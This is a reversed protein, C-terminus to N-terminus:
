NKFVLDSVKIIKGSSDTVSPYIEVSFEWKKQAKEIEEQSQAGKLFLGYFGEGTLFNSTLGLLDGLPALARATVVDIKPLDTNEVRSNHVIVPTGTERSVERLFVAKRADSEILHVDKVGLIALVLGPFGAGSGMDALSINVDPIHQFLQASDFFHRSAADDMTSSSILNITKQWKRLLTEYIEMKTITERSVILNHHAFVSEITNSKM